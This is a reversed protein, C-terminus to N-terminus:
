RQAANEVIRTRQAAVLGRFCHGCNHVGGGGRAVWGTEAYARPGARADCIDCRYSMKAGLKITSM